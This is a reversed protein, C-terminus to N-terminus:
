GEGLHQQRTQRWQENNPRTDRGAASGFVCRVRHAVLRRDEFLTWAVGQLPRAPVTQVNLARGRARILIPTKGYALVSVLDSVSVVKEQVGASEHLPRIRDNVAQGAIEEQVDSSDIVEADDRTVLEAESASLLDCFEQGDIVFVGAFHAVDGIFAAVQRRGRGGVDFRTVLQDEADGVEAAVHQPDHHSGRVVPGIEVNFNLLGGCAAM